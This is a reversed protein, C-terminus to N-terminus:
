PPDQGSGFTAEEKVVGRGGDAWSRGEEKLGVNQNAVKCQESKSEEVFGERGGM